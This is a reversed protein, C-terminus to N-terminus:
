RAAFPDASQQPRGPEYVGGSWPSRYPPYVMTQRMHPVTVSQRPPRAPATPAKRVPAPAPKTADERPDLRTPDNCENDVIKTNREILALKKWYWSYLNRQAQQKQAPLPLKAIGKEREARLEEVAKEYLSIEIRAQRCWEEDIARATQAAAATPHCSVGVAVTLVFARLGHNWQM